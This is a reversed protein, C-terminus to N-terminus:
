KDKRTFLIDPGGMGVKIAKAYNYLDRLYSHDDFLLWEGPM